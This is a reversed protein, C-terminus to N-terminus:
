SGKGDEFYHQWETKTLFMRRVDVDLVNCLEYLVTAPIESLGSRYRYLQSPTVGIKGAIKTDDYVSVEVFRQINDALIMRREVRETKQLRNM